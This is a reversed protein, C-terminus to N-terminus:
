IKKEGTTRAIRQTKPHGVQAYIIKTKHKHRQTRKCHIMAASTIITIEIIKEEKKQPGREAVM